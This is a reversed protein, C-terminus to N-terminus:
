PAEPGFRDGPQVPRGRLFEAASMRRKGAPQLECVQVVSAEEGPTVEGARVFLSDPFKADVFVSGPLVSPDYRVPFENARNIIIRLPAQGERHLFTYATPWPQMARVHNVVAAAPKSWDILGDEKKLKPAKTVLAPDQKTGSVLGAKM